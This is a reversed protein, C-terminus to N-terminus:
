TDPWRRRQAARGRRARGRLAPRAPKQFRWRAGCCSRCRCCRWGPWRRAGALLVGIGIVVVVTTRSRCCAPQRRSDLFRELQNVDDNLVSMLGGTSKDEFFALEMDQVRGYADLRLEHELTQALNRWEIKSLYEFLSELVWIVFTLGTLVWLQAVISVVGFGALLSNEREVVVDVALGILGPPALDFFRNLISYATARWVQGRHPQAYRLLRRLPSADSASARM